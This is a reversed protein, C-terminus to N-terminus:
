FFIISNDIIKKTKFEDLTETKITEFLNLIKNIKNINIPKILIGNIGTKKFSNITINSNDGTYAFILSKYGIIDKILNALTIGDIDGIHYDLFIIDFINNKICNIIRIGENLTQVIHGRTELIDKFLESTEKDDDVILINLKKKLRYTIDRQYKVCNNM